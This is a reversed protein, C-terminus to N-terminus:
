FYTGVVTQGSSPLAVYRFISLMAEAADKADTDMGFLPALADAALTAYPDSLPDPIDLSTWRAIGRMVLDNHVAQV